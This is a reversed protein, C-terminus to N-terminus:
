EASLILDEAAAMKTWYWQGRAVVAVMMWLVMMMM